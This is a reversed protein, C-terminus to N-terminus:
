ITGNLKRGIWFLCLLLTVAAAIIWNAWLYVRQQMPKPEPLAKLEGVLNAVDSVDCSRGNAISAMERLLEPKAPQGVSELQEGITFLEMKVPKDEADAVCGSLKWVGAQDVNFSAGYAGWTGDRATLEIRKTKNDPSTIDLYLVGSKLPVGSADSANASVSVIDGPRPREPSVYLRLREGAAMNRQYSMWRAVQGWFRYHYLDEVGRRWKWASDTGMFLVKGAGSAKTVLLPIRGFENKRSSHVGLVSTGSKARIVPASWNFGPLTRWIGANNDENDALLTLLSGSGESTLSLSSVVEDTHGNVNKEDIIVPILDALPSQHLSNQKGQWGPMFVIGSAQKEVLGKLLECQKESLGGEGYGVDGIFVVDFKALDEINDPFSKLYGPGEGAGIKPHLLLTNVEVGPDRYLANRIFRYEWRPLSDIVLVRIQERRGSLNFEMSNNNHVLEGSAVPISLNLSDAGEKDIRWLITETVDGYAPVKIERTKERGDKSRLKVTTTIERGLSGRLTFPIQVNEGVIGYAPAKIDVVSIDPLRRDSGLPVAYFPVSRNRLKQASSVASSKANHDGDSLMIVARLNDVGAITKDIAQALDSSAFANEAESKPQPSFEQLIIENEKSLPQWFKNDLLEKQAMARSLATNGRTVDQTQMSKSGDYLVVISPKSTPKSIKVLEPQMLLLVVVLTVLWRTAELVKTLKKPNRKIATYCLYTMAAMALVGFCIWAWGANFQLYTQNM